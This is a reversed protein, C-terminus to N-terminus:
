EPNRDLNIGISQVRRIIEEVFKNEKQRQHLFVANFLATHAQVIMSSGEVVM